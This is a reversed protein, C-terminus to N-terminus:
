RFSLLAAGGLGELESTLGAIQQGYAGRHKPFLNAVSGEAVSTAVDGPIAHM